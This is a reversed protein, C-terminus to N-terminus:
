TAFHALPQGMQISQGTQCSDLWNVSNEGLCLIVTSGLCFRGMEAGKNLSITADLANFDQQSPTSFPTIRGAWVTEIAAVIMAGVLVMAVDGIATDFICVLRENRAFLNPVNNATAPNVSFLRGPIYISQKLTGDIPMHLRHYDKPSLYICMFEGNIFPKALESNGGLLTQVQYDQGKAQIIQGDNIHGFQSIAGDAPSILSHSDAIIPRADPKLERTFFDNFNVYESPNERQAEQMNVAYTAIFRKILANKLWPRKSEALKGVLRSIGHHPLPYQSLAFLKEDLM